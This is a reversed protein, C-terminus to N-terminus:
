KGWFFEFNLVKFSLIWFIFVWDSKRMTQLLQEVWGNMGESLTGWIATWGKEKAKFQKGKSKYAKTMQWRSIQAMFLWSSQDEVSASEKWSDWGVVEGNKNKGM